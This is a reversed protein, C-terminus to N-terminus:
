KLIHKPIKRYIFYALVIKVMDFPIFPLLSLLAIWYNVELTFSLYINALLYLLVIGFLSAVFLNHVMNKPYSKFRSIGLSVLPFLMLFGGSPGFLVSFGGRAGSFVPIGFAGIMIYVFVSFFAELPTLLFGILVVFMTQLTFSVEVFPIPIPPIMYVSVALMSAFLSIRTMSKINM